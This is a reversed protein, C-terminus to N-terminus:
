CISCTLFTDIKLGIKNHLGQNAVKVYEFFEMSKLSQFYFYFLGYNHLMKAEFTLWRLNQGLAVYAHSFIYSTTNNYCYFM